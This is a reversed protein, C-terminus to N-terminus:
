NLLKYTFKVKFIQLRLTFAANILHVAAKIEVM